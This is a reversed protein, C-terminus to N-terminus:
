ASIFLSHLIEDIVEDTPFHKDPSCVTISVQKDAADFLLQRQRLKLDMIPMLVETEIVLKGGVNYIDYDKLKTGEPSYKKHLDVLYEKDHGYLPLEPKKAFVISLAGEVGNVTLHKDRGVFSPTDSTVAATKVFFKVGNEEIPEVGDIETPTIPKAKELADELSEFM